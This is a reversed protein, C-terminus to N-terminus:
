QQRNESTGGGSRGGRGVGDPEVDRGGIPERGGGREGIRRDRDRARERVGKGTNPRLVNHWEKDRLQRAREHAGIESAPQEGLLRQGSRVRGLLASSM